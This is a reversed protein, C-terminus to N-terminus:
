KVVPDKLPAGPEPPAGLHPSAPARGPTTGLLALLLPLALAMAPSLASSPSLPRAMAISAPGLGRGRIAGGAPHPRQCQALVRPCQPAQWGWGAVRSSAGHGPTGVAMDENPDGNLPGMAGAPIGKLTEM